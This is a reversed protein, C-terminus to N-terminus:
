STSRERSIVRRSSSAVGVLLESARCRYLADNAGRNCRMAGRRSLVEHCVCNLVVMILLVDHKMDIYACCVLTRQHVVMTRPPLPVAIALITSDCMLQRLISCHHSMHCFVLFTERCAINVLHDRCLRVQQMTEFSVQGEKIQELLAEKLLISKDLDSLEATIRTESKRLAREQAVPCSLSGIHTIPM